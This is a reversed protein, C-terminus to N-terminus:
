SSCFFRLAFLLLLVPAQQEAQAATSSIKEEKSTRL